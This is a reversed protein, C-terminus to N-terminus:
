RNLMLLDYGKFVRDKPDVGLTQMFDFIDKQIANADGDEVLKEVEIFVGLNEIHDVCIEYGQYEAKRRTKDVRIVEEFGVAECIKAMAEADEIVTEYELKDLHNNPNPKKYTFIIKGDQNRIRLAEEVFQAKPNTGKPFYVIDLQHIPQSLIIGAQEINKLLATEDQVKAKVEIEKM